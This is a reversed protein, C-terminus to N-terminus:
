GPGSSVSSSIHHWAAPLNARSWYGSIAARHLCAQSNFESSDKLSLPPLDRPYAEPCLTFSDIHGPLACLRRHQYHIVGLRPGCYELKHGFRRLKPPAFIRAGSARLSGLV